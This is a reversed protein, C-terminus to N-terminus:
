TAATTNINSYWEIINRTITGKFKLTAVPPLTQLEGPPCSYLCLPAHIGKAVDGSFVNVPRRLNETSHIKFEIAHMHCYPFNEHHCTTYGTPFFYTDAAEAGRRLNTDVGSNFAKNETSSTLSGEHTSPIYTYSYTAHNM